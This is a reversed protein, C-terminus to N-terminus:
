HNAKNRIHKGIFYYFKQICDLSINGSGVVLSSLVYFLELFLNCQMTSILFEPWSFGEAKRWNRIIILKCLKRPTFM